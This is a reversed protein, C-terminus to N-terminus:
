WDAVAARRFGAVSWVTQAHLTFLCHMQRGWGAGRCGMEWLLVCVIFEDLSEDVLLGGPVTCPTNWEPANGVCSLLACRGGSAAVSAAVSAAFASKFMEGGLGSMELGSMEWGSMEWGSM